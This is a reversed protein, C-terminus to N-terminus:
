STSRNMQAIQQTVYSSLANLKAVNADMATYQAVLRKQFAEVRDNLRTQDEGNKSILKQLGQTRTTVTGDVGLVQTALKAYRRAFGDNAPTLTDSNTLAKQLEPLNTLAKDLKTQNVTLTGNRQAELGMDSLRAFMSSASSSLNLVSRLQSQLGTAASDGQLPGGTKADANYKTQENLYGALASYAEAFTKIGAAIAERDRVASINVTTTPSEKRLTLTVGDIVGTVDNSASEVGINNVTLNANLAAQRQLMGTTGAPPDFAFRSLGASDGLQGDNDVASLRFGNEKGSADSRLSLRVGNADSVLSASVGASAANIKDRLTELTDTATVTIASASTGSKPSFTTQGNDWSGLQLSMTGAGVLDTAASVSTNAAVTQSGALNQVVVAYNGVAAGTNGSVSVAATDSSSVASKQWFTSDNLKNSATQLTSFHSNIKGYLSVKTNLTSAQTQMQSLPRRELAVLQTVISNLDLGSGVGLSTISAMTQEQLVDFLGFLLGV